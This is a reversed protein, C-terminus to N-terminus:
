NAQRPPPRPTEPARIYNFRSWEPPRSPAPLRMSASCSPCPPSCPPQPPHPAATPPCPPPRVAPCGPTPLSAGGGIGWCRDRGGDRGWWPLTKERRSAFGMAGGARLVCVRPGWGTLPHGWPRATPRDAPRKGARAARGARITACVLPFNGPLRQHGGGRFGGVQFGRPPPDGRAGWGRARRGREGKM